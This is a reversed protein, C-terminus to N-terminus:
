AAEGGGLDVWRGGRAFHRLLAERRGGGWTTLVVLSGFNSLWRAIELVSNFEHWWLAELPDVVWTDPCEPCCLSRAAEGWPLARMMVIERDDCAHRPDPSCWVVSRGGKRAVDPASSSKKAM